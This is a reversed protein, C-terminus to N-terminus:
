SASGRNGSWWTSSRRRLHGARRVARRAQRARGEAQRRDAERHRRGAGGERRHAELGAEGAPTRRTCARPCRGAAGHEVGQRVGGAHAQGAHHRVGAHPTRLGGPQRFRRPREPPRHRRHRGGDARAHARGARRRRRLCRHVRGTSRRPDIGRGDAAPTTRVKGRVFRVTADVPATGGRKQLRDLTAGLRGEDLTVVPDLRSGGTWYDWLDLPSWSGGSGAAQISAPYDVTIGAEEPTVEITRTGVTVELPQAERDALGERLLAEAEDAGHGGVEVGAVTTGRPVNDGAFAHAAYYGGGFLLALGVILALVVRGGSDERKPQPSTPSVSTM